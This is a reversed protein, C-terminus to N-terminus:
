TPQLAHDSLTGCHQVTLKVQGFVVAVIVCAVHCAAIVGICCSM